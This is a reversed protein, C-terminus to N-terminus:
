LIMARFNLFFTIEMVIFDENTRRSRKTFTNRAEGEWGIVMRYFCSERSREACLIEDKYLVAMIM